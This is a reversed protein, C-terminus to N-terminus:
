VALAAPLVCGVTKRKLRRHSTPIANNANIANIANNANM